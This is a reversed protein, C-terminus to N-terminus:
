KCFVKKPLLKVGPLHIFFFDFEVGISNRTIFIYNQNPSFSNFNHVRKIDKKNRNKGRIM